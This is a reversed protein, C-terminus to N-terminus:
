PAIKKFDSRQVLTTAQRHELSCLHSIEELTAVAVSYRKALTMEITKIVREKSSFHPFLRCVFDEHSRGARYAPTKKPKLLYDMHESRFNWLFTTHHLWRDKKLYQANGGCKKEGIVYDNERWGFSPIDFADQYFKALWNHIHEPFPHFPHLDKQCIFTVFLTDEDVVVTGGGSFRRIIPLPNQDVKKWDILEDAKGSIGMVIAKPSGENIICWNRHDLRLLAEEMQLQKYIPFSSLNLLNFTM